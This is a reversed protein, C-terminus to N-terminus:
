RVLSEILSSRTLASVATRTKKTDSQLAKPPPQDTSPETLRLWSSMLIPFFEPGATAASCYNLRPNRQVCAFQREHVDLDNSKQIGALFATDLEEMAPQTMVRFDEFNYSFSEVVSFGTRNPVFRLSSRSSLFPVLMSWMVNVVIKEKSAVTPITRNIMNPM